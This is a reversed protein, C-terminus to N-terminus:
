TGKNKEHLLVEIMGRCVPDELLEDIIDFKQPDTLKVSVM